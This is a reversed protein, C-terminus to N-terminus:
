VCKELEYVLFIMVAHRRISLIMVRISFFDLGCHEASESAGLNNSCM